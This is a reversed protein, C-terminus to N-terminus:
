RGVGLTHSPLSYRFWVRYLVRRSKYADDLENGNCCVNWPVVNGNRVMVLYEEGRVRSPNCTQIVVLICIEFKNFTQNSADKACADSTTTDAPSM